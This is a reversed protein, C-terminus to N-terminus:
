AVPGLHLLHRDALLALVDDRVAEVSRGTTDLTLDADDPREYPASIGTFNPIEGSRAKAYLGKRDRRECEEVPTAIHVLVMTGGRETVIRRVEKRTTDYPAIPSCIALGGHHAVQAAVWGIRRINTERDAPSFGLGASLNRRVIDGDLLTIPRGDQELIANRVARAVTSKGSGSLGTFFLVLGPSTSEGAPVSTEPLHEVPRPSYAGIVSDLLEPEDAARRADFPVAVVRVNSRREGLAVASRITALTWASPEVSPGALVLLTLPSDGLGDVDEAEVPRDVLVTVAGDAAADARVTEPAAYLHEFPRSSVEGLWVPQKTLVLHPGDLEPRDIRALPVGEPDVLEIAAARDADAPVDIRLPSTASPSWAGVRILELDDLSDLPPCISIVSSPEPM